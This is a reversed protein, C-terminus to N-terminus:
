PSDQRIVGCVCVCLAAAAADYPDRRPHANRVYAFSSAIRNGDGCQIM